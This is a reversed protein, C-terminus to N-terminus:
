RKDSRRSPKLKVATGAGSYGGMTSLQLKLGVIADAGLEMAQKM